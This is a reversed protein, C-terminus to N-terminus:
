QGRLKCCRATTWDMGACQCHCITPERVDWSGCASGCSCGTVISGSPCTALAGRSTVSSCTMQLKHLAALVSGNCLLSLGYSEQGAKEQWPALWPAGMGDWTEIAPDGGTGM